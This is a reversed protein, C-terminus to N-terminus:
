ERPHGPCVWSGPSKEIPNPCTSVTIIGQKKLEEFHTRSEAWKLDRKEYPIDELLRIFGQVDFGMHIITATM